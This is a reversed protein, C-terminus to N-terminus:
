WWVKEREYKDYLFRLGNEWLMLRTMIEELQRTSQLKATQSFQYRLLKDQIAQSRIQEESIINQMFIYAKNSDKAFVEPNVAESLKPASQCHPTNQSNACEALAAMLRAGLIKSDILGSPSIVWEEFSRMSPYHVPLGALVFAQIRSVASNLAKNERIEDQDDIALHKGLAGTFKVLNDVRERESKQYEALWNNKSNSNESRNFDETDDFMGNFKGGDSVKIGEYNHPYIQGNCGQNSAGVSSKWLPLPHNLDAIETGNIPSHRDLFTVRASRNVKGIPYVIPKEGNTHFEFKLGVKLKVTNCSKFGVQTNDYNLDAEYTEFCVKVHGLRQKAAWQFLSPVMRRMESPMPYGESKFRETNALFADVGRNYLPLWGIQVQAALFKQGGALERHNYPISKYYQTLREVDYGPGNKATAKFDAGDCLYIRDDLKFGPILSTNAAGFSKVFLEESHKEAALRLASQYRAVLPKLIAGNVHGRKPNTWDISMNKYLNLARFGQALVSQVQHLIRKKDTPESANVRVSKEVLHKKNFLTFLLYNAHHSWVLPDVEETRDYVSQWASESGRDWADPLDTLTNQYVSHSKTGRETFKSFEKSILGLDSHYPFSNSRFKVVFNEDDKEVSLSSSATSALSALNGICLGLQNAQSAGRCETYIGNIQTANMLRLQSLMQKKLEEMEERFAGLTQIIKANDRSLREFGEGVRVLLNDMKEDLIDFRQHMEKRMQFISRGLEFIGRLIAADASEQAPGLAQALGLALGIYGSTASMVGFNEVGVKSIAAQLSVAQAVYGLTAAERPHGTLQAVYGLLKITSAAESLVQYQSESISTTNQGVRTNINNKSDQAKRKSTNSLEGNIKKLENKLSKHGALIDSMKGDMSKIIKANLALVVDPHSSDIQEIDINLEKKAWERMLSAVQPNTQKMGDYVSLFYTGNSVHEKAPGFDEYLTNGAQNLWSLGSAIKSMMPHPVIALGDLVLGGYKVTQAFQSDHFDARSSNRIADKFMREPWRAIGPNPLKQQLNYEISKGFEAAISFALANANQFKDLHQNNIFVIQAKEAQNFYRNAYSLSPMMNLAVITLELLLKWRLYLASGPISKNEKLTRRKM